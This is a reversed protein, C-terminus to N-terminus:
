HLLKVGQNEREHEQECEATAHKRLDGAGGVAVQKDIGVVIAANEVDVHVDVNGVNFDPNAGVFRGRDVECACEAAVDRFYPIRTVHTGVVEVAVIRGGRGRNGADVM